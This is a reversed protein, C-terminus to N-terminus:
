VGGPPTLVAERCLVAVSKFLRRWGIPDGKAKVFRVSLIRDDGSKEIIVSGHLPQQRSDLTKVRISLAGEPNALPSELVSAPIPPVPISLRHLSTLILNTLPTASLYSYFRTLTHSPMIDRFQRAAQTLTL